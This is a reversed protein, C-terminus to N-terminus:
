MNQNIIYLLILAIAIGVFWWINSMEQKPKRQKRSPMATMVLTKDQKPKQIQEIQESSLQLDVM